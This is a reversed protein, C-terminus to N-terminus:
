SRAVELTLDWNQGSALEVANDAIAGVELCVFRRWGGEGLDRMAAGKEPGPNWTVASKWDGRLEFGSAGDRIRLPSPADLYVRDVEGDFRVLGSQTQRAYDKTKDMFTRGDLGEIEVSAVDSVAFYTHLACEFSRVQTARNVVSFAVALVDGFGYSLHISWEDQELHLAIHDDSSSDVEWNAMRAWGHSPAKPENQKPGFWPFIVPIGGHFSRGVQFDADPPFFLWDKFRALQAGQLFLEADPFDLKDPMINSLAQVQFRWFNQDSSNWATELKIGNGKDRIRGPRKFRM